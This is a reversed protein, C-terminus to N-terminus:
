HITPRKEDQSRNLVTNAFMLVEDSVLHRSHNPIEDIIEALGEREQQTDENAEDMQEIAISLQLIQDELTM